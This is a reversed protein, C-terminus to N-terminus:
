IFGTFDGQETHVTGHLRRPAGSLPPTPLLDITRIQAADLDVARGADDWVRVGDDFDSAGFRDLNFMTGSKLTVRVDRGSAEIRAIEGIRSVFLRSVERTTEREAVKFGFVEFKSHEKPRKEAPLQALWPNGRKSGNFYDSWFAEQDGGFRLRGEHTTGDVTTVRGYLFGQTESAPLAEGAAPTVAPAVAAPGANRRAVVLLAVVLVVFLIAIAGAAILLKKM